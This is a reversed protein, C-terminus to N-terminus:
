GLLSWLLGKGMDRNLIVERVAETNSLRCELQCEFSMESKRLTHSFYFNHLDRVGCYTFFFIFQCVM